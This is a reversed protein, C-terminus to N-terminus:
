GEGGEQGGEGQTKDEVVPEGKAKKEKKTTIANVVAEDTSNTLTAAEGALAVILECARGVPLLRALKPFADIQQARDLRQVKGLLTDAPAMDAEAIAHKPARPAKANKAKLAEIEAMAADLKAQLEEASLTPATHKAM